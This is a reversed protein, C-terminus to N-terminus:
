CDWDVVPTPLRWRRDLTQLLQPPATLDDTVALASASAVGMWLRTFAGVSATMTPMSDHSGPVASSASGLTIVYTGGAGRWTAASGLHEVIPDTLKLVFRVPEGDVRVAAMCAPVDLIRMQWWPYSEPKHDFDGKQTTRWRRFPAKLLSQLEIGVPEPMRVGHVQDRWSAIVSLLEIAQQRTEYAMWVVKYPGHEGKAELMMHHTLRGDDGEFGVGFGNDVWIIEGATAGVGDFSPAGHVKLRALRNAHMRKSDANGLRIPQRSLRPVLLDAPDVTVFRQNAGTGFGLRDYYGTDFVGLMSVSKGEVAADHVLRATARSGLGVGRAIRSVSVAAVLSLSIDVGDYHLSGPRRIGFGEVQGRLEGCVGACENLWDRIPESEDDKDMWGIERWIRCIADFDGTNDIVRLDNMENGYRNM